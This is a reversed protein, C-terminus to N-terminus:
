NLKIIYKNRMSIVDRIQDRVPEFNAYFQDKDGLCQTTRNESNFLNEYFKIWCKTIDFGYNMVSQTAKYQIDTSNTNSHASHYALPLYSFFLANLTDFSSYAAGICNKQMSFILDQYEFIQHYTQEDSIDYLKVLMGNATQVISETEEWHDQKKIETRYPNARYIEACAYPWKEIELDNENRLAHKIRRLQNSDSPLVILAAPYLSSLRKALIAEPLNIKYKIKAFKSLETLSEDIQKAIKTKEVMPKYKHRECFWRVHMAYLMKIIKICDEPDMANCDSEDDPYIINCIQYTLDMIERLSAESLPKSPPSPTILGKLREMSFADNIEKDIEMFNVCNTISSLFSM